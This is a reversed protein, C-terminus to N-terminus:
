KKILGPLIANMIEPVTTYLEKEDRFLDRIQNKSDALKMKADFIYVNMLFRSEGRLNFNGMVVKKIKLNAVAKWVDSEYQPNSPDLNLKALEDELSDPSVIIYSKKEPDAKVLEKYITDQLNYCWINKNMKGDMNKFPLVAIRVQSNLNISFFTLLILILISKM